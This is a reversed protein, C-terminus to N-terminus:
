MSGTTCALHLPAHSQENRQDVVRQGEEGRGEGGEGEGGQSQAELEALIRQM